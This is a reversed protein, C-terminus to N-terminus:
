LSEKLTFKMIITEELDTEKLIELLKKDFVRESDVIETIYDFYIGVSEINSAVLFKQSENSYYPINYPGKLFMQLYIDDFKGTAAHKLNLHGYKQGGSLRVGLTYGNSSGERFHYYCIFEGKKGFEFKTLINDDKKYLSSEQFATWNFIKDEPFRDPFNIEYKISDFNEGENIKYIFSSLPYTYLEGNIFGSYNLGEYEGYRDFAMRKEITKGKVNLIDINFEDEGEVLLSYLALNGSNLVSMQWGWEKFKIKEEFVFDSNFKYIAFDARSFIYIYEGYVDFDTVERFESPGEGKAGVLSIFQGNKNFAFVINKRGDLLLLNGNLERIKSAITVRLSDPAKLLLFEADEFLSRPSLLSDTEEVKEFDIVEVKGRNKEDSVKACSIFIFISSLLLLYRM